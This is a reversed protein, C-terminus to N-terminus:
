VLIVSGDEMFLQESCIYLCKGMVWKNLSYRLSRPMIQMTTCHYTGWYRWLYDWSLWCWDILVARGPSEARSPSCLSFSSSYLLCSQLCTCLLLFIQRYLFVKCAHLILLDPSTPFDTPSLLSSELQLLLTYLINVNIQYINETTVLVEAVPWVREVWLKSWFANFQLLM